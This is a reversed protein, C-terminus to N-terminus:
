GWPGHGPILPTNQSMEGVCCRALVAMGGGCAFGGLLTGLAWGPQEMSGSGRFRDSQKFCLHRICFHGKRIMRSARAM